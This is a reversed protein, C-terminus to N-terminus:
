CKRLQNFTPAKLDGPDVTQSIRNDSLDTMSIQTVGFFSNERKAKASAM